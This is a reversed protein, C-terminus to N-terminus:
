NIRIFTTASVNAPNTELGVRPTGNSGDSTPNGVSGSISTTASITGTININTGTNIGAPGSNVSVLTGNEAGPAFHLTTTAAFSNSHQHGQMEDNQYSGLTGSFAAGNANALTGSTGAGRIFVGRADPLTSNGSMAAYQTGVCSSGDAIVWGPGYQAQFQVLTLMSHKTDGIAGVADGLLTSM